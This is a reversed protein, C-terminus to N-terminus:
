TMGSNRRMAPSRATSLTFRLALAVGLVLWLALPPSTRLRLVLACAFLYALGACAAVAVFRNTLHVSGVSVAHPVHLSLGGLTLALISLGAAALLFIPRDARTM